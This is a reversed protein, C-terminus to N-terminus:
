RARVQSCRPSRGYSGSIGVVVALESVDVRAIHQTADEERASAGRALIDSLLEDQSHHLGALPQM